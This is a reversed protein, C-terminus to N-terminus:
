EAEGFGFNSYAALTATSWFRSGRTLGNLDVVAFRPHDDEVEADAHIGDAAAALTDGDVSAEFTVLQPPVVGVNAFERPVGFSVRAQVVCGRSLLLDQQRSSSWLGTEETDLVVLHQGVEHRYWGATHALAGRRAGIVLRVHQLVPPEELQTRQRELLRRMADLAWDGALEGRRVEDTLAAHLAGDVLGEAALTALPAADSHLSREIADSVVRTAHASGALLEARPM